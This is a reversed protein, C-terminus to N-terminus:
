VWCVGVISYPDLTLIPFQHCPVPLPTMDRKPERDGGVPEKDPPLPPMPLVQQKPPKALTM